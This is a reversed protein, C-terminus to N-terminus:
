SKLVTVTAVESMARVGREGLIRRVQEVHLECARAIEYDGFGRGGLEHVAARIDERSKPRNLRAAQLYDADVNM